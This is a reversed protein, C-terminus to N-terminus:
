LVVKKKLLLYGWVLIGLIFVQIEIGGFPLSGFSFSIGLFGLILPFLGTVCLPCVGVALGGISGVGSLYGAEKCRKRQRYAMYMLVSNVSVFIGILLTLLISIGLKFWNVTSSYILILKVSNYFGSFIINLTIYILFIIIIYNIYPKAFVKKM